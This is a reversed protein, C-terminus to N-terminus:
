DKGRFELNHKESIYHQTDEKSAMYLAAAGLTSLFQGVESKRMNLAETLSIGGYCEEVQDETWIDGISEMEEIFTRLELKTM